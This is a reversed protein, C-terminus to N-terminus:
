NMTKTFTDCFIYERWFVIYAKKIYYKMLFLLQLLNFKLSVNSFCLSVTSKEDARDIDRHLKLDADDGDFQREESDQDMSSQEDSQQFSVTNGTANPAMVYSYESFVVGDRCNIRKVYQYM